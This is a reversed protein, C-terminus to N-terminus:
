RRTEWEERSLAYMGESGEMPTLGLRALLRCSPENAKATGTVVRAAGLETFARHLAAQCAETAYGRGHYDFNFIYGINLATDPSGEEPNLCVFGIFTGDPKLCVALYRDGSAFWEAVGKLEDESTPWQHDYKAYPSAAYQLVMKRLDPWDDKTFNRLTLRGTEIPNVAYM